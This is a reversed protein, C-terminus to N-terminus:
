CMDVFLYKKDPLTEESLVGGVRPLWICCSHWGCALWIGVLHCGFALCLGVVHWGFHWGFALWIGFVYWGFVLRIGVLPWGFTLLIDVLHGGFALLIGVLALWIGVLHWCVFSAFAFLRWIAAFSSRLDWVCNYVNSVLGDLRGSVCFFRLMRRELWCMARIEGPLRVRGKLRSAARKHLMFFPAFSNDGLVLSKVVFCELSWIKLRDLSQNKNLFTPGLVM